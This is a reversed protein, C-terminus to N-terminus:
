WASFSLVLCVKRANIQMHELQRTILLFYNIQSDTMHHICVTSTFVIGCQFCSHSVFLFLCVRVFVYQVVSSVFFWWFFFWKEYKHVVFASVRFRIFPPVANFAITFSHRLHYNSPLPYLFQQFSGLTGPLFRVWFRPRMYQGTLQLFKM